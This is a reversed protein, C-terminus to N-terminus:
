NPNRLSDWMLCVLPHILFFVYYMGTFVRGMTEYPVEVPCRGIWTLLLLNVVILWFIYQNIYYFASGVRRQINIFPVLVLMGLALVLAMVGGLKNPISRLIAYIWLFYWEPIIHVPTVLPNAMIFNESDGLVCPFFFVIIFFFFFIVMFGLCDKIIHYSHFPIRIIFSNLGLPNNSGNQHLFLLHIIVAGTIIFPLLFHLSFFRNLTANDVSFGGWIWEVLTTGVYPIASFLNTIVTAAWFRIQGWVLVYGIFATAILLVYILVGTNWLEKVLFSSYYYGRGIHIYICLFFFSAGNAHLNRLLWGYNVDRVIHSVSLFALDISPAYHIALLIGTILQIGLCLGLLSGFNWFVSINIPVALDILAGNFVKLLSHTKRLPRFM